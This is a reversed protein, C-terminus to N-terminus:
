VKRWTLHSNLLQTHWHSTSILEHFCDLNHIHLHCRKNRSSTDGGFYVTTLEVFNFTTLVRQTRCISLRPGVDRVCTVTSTNEYGSLASCLTNCIVIITIHPKELSTSQLQCYGLHWWWTYHTIQQSTSSFIAIIGGFVQWLRRLICWRHLLLCLPQQPTYYTTTNTKSHQNCKTLKSM